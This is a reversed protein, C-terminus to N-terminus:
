NESLLIEVRDQITRACEEATIKDDMFRNYEENFIRSVDTNEYSLSNSSTVFDYYRQAQEESVTSEFNYELGNYNGSSINPKGNPHISNKISKEFAKKTVPHMGRAWLNQHEENLVYSIFEWAGDSCDSNAIISYSNSMYLQGSGTGPFNLLSVDELKMGQQGLHSLIDDIGTTTHRLSGTSFMLKNDKFMSLKEKISDPEDSDFDPYAQEHEKCIELIRIFDNSDFNCTCKDYDIWINEDCLISKIYLSNCIIMGDPRRDYLELFDKISWNRYEDGIYDKKATLIQVNFHDPIAYLGGKYEYAELVNPMLEDRSIGTDGDLYPSLDALGGMNVLNYMNGTSAYYIIDPGDGALIAASVDELTVLEKINTNYKDNLRCFKTAEDNLAGGCNIMWIDLTTRNEVYDDPRRTYVELKNGNCYTIFKGEGISCFYNQNPNILSKGFDIVMIVDGSKTLGYLGDSLILYAEFSGSGSVPAYLIQDADTIPKMDKPISASSGDMYAYNGWQTLIVDGGPTTLLVSNNYQSDADADILSGDRGIIALGEGFNLILKDEGCPVLGSLRSTENDYYKELGDIPYEATINGNNDYNILKFTFEAESYFEKFNTIEGNEDYEFRFDTDSKIADISSDSNVNFAGGSLDDIINIVKFDSDLRALKQKQDSSTYFFYIQDGCVAMHNCYEIDDIDLFVEDISYSTQSVTVAAPTGTVKSNKKGGCATSTFLMTLAFLLATLKKM